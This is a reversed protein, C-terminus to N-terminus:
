LKLAKQLWNKVTKKDIELSIHDIKGILNDLKLMSIQQEIALKERQVRGIAMELMLTEALQEPSATKALQATLATLQGNLEAIEDNLKKIQESM